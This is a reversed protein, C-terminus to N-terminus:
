DTDTDTDTIRGILVTNVVVAPIRVTDLVEGGSKFLAQAFEKAWTLEVALIAASTGPAISASLAEVDEHGTLGRELLGLGTLEANNFDDLEDIEVVRLDGNLSKSVFVMDLLNITHNDVLDALAEGVEPGPRDGDFGILILDVPGYDFDKVATV